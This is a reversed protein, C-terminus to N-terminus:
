CEVLSRLLELTSISRARSAIYNQSSYELKGNMWRYMHMICRNLQCSDAEEGELDMSTIRLVDCSPNVGRELLTLCRWAARDEATVRM